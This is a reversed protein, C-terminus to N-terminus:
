ENILKPNHSAPRCLILEYKWERNNFKMDCGLVYYQGSVTKDEVFHGDDINKMDVQPDLPINMTPDTIIGAEEFSEKKMDYMSDNIYWVFNVKSGRMIGLLPTNITVKITETSMKQLFDNRKRETLFFDQSSYCEGVYEYKTFIDKKVDGDQILYDNYSNNNINFSSYVRDTGRFIQQSSKSIREYNSVYLEGTKSTPHNNLIAPVQIPTIENGEGVENNQTAIWIQMDEDSDISNYREYVDALVLNNWFDVWYDCIQIGYGSHTIEKNLIDLYSKYDCYIFRKDVDNSQINTAFGMGTKKAIDSFLNFTNVEGFSEYRTDTLSSLKYTGSVRVFGGNNKINTLYFLMNIKKYANDFKPLIQLQLENENGPVDFAKLLNYRDKIVLSISPINGSSKLSFDIVDNFDVIINNIKVLPSLIGYVSTQQIESQNNKYNEGAEEESSNTLPIIIDPLKITSDFEVLIQSM